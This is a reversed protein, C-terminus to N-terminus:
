GHRILSPFSAPGAHQSGPLASFTRAGSGLSSEFYFQFPRSFPGTFGPVMFVPVGSVITGVTPDSVTLLCLNSTVMDFMAMKPVQPQPFGPVNWSNIGTLDLNMGSGTGTGSASGPMGNTLGRYTWSISYSGATGSFHATLTGVELVNIIPVRNFTFMTISANPDAAQSSPAAATSSVPIALGAIVLFLASVLVRLRRWEMM